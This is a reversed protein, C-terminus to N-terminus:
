FSVITSSSSPQSPLLLKRSSFDPFIKDSENNKYADYIKSKTEQVQHSYHAEMEARLRKPLKELSIRVWTEKKHIVVIDDHVQKILDQMEEFLAMIQSKLGAVVVEIHARESQSEMGYKRLFLLDVMLDELAVKTKEKAQKREVLLTNENELSAQLEKMHSAIDTIQKAKKKERAEKAKM